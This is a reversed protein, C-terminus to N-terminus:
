KEGMVKRECTRIKHELETEPNGRQGGAVQNKFKDM